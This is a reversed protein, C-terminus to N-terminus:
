VDDREGNRGSELDAVVKEAQRRLQKEIDLARELHKLTLVVLQNGKKQEYLAREATVRAAQEKKLEESVDILM